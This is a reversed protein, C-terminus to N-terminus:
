NKIRYGRKIFQYVIVWLIINTCVLIIAGPLLPGDHYGTMAYRFGDIMYFFPNITSAIYWFTPLDKVSYFTGSLFSLPTIIYSTIAAMQDFSESFIGGFLGLLALLMCATITYFLVLLPSAMSLPIFILISAAVLLGVLVGRTIAAFVMATVIEGASLPPMLIDIINGLVKGMIFSSSSNAFANQVMAMMILGSAMFMNFPVHGIHSVHDGLALNFVALFLLSTVVPALLTQNYVKIFRRVEKKYLTYCGLWNIPEM